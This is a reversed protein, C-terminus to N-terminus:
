FRRIEEARQADSVEHQVVRFFQHRFEEEGSFPLPAYQFGTREMAIVGAGRWAYITEAGISSLKPLGARVTNRVIWAAPLLMGAVAFLATARLRRGPSFAFVWFAMPLLLYTAAPRILAAGGILLGAALLCWWRRRGGSRVAALALPLIAFFAVSALTETMVFDAMVVQGTDTAVILAAAFAAPDNGLIRRAALFVAVSLAIALLHQAGAVAAHSFDLPAFITLFLPYGPTRRVDPQGSDDLFERREALSRANTLYQPSDYLLHDSENWFRLHAVTAVAAIVAALLVARRRNMGAETRGAAGMATGM